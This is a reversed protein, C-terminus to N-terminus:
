LRTSTSSIAAQVTCDGALLGKGPAEDAREGDDGRDTTTLGNIGQLLVSPIAPWCATFGGISLLHIEIYRCNDNAHRQRM